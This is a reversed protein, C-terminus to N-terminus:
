ADLHVWAGHPHASGIARPPLEHGDRWRRLGLVTGSERDALSDPVPVGPVCGPPEASVWSLPMGSRAFEDLVAGVEARRSREVYTLAWSSYVVLHDAASAGRVLDDLFPRLDDVLDGQVVSPPDRRLLDRAARFREVRGPVDPWLCAELWRVASDDDLAVPHLDLGARAAVPPLPGHRVPSSSRDEGGCRVPSEEDGIAFTTIPSTIEIRYRDLGLLLGASAGLEALAVPTDPLDLSAACVGLALYVSRNVENTQTSRTAILSTLEDRHDLVTARVDPWPDGHAVSYRGAVSPYWQAAPLNPKRLVLDHLAAFWLVPRSQGPRAALLLSATESDDAVALSIRRYLPLDAAASRAFTAFHHQVDTVDSPDRDADSAVM